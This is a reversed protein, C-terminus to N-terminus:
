NFTSNYYLRQFFRDMTVFIVRLLHRNHARFKFFPAKFFTLFAFTFLGSFFKILFVMNTSIPIM